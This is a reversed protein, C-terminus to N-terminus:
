KLGSSIGNFDSDSPVSMRDLEGQIASLEADIAKADSASLGKHAASGKAVTTGASPAPASAPASPTATATSPATPTVSAQLAAAPASPTVVAADRSVRGCGALGAVAAVLVLGLVARSLRTPLM